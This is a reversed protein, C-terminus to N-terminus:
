EDEDEGILNHAEWQEEPIPEGVQFAYAEVGSFDPSATCTFRLGYWKQAARYAAGEAELTFGTLTTPAFASPSISDPLPAPKIQHLQELGEINCLQVIRETSELLPLTERVQRNDPDTLIRNTFLETAQVMGDAPAPPAADPEETATPTALPATTVEPPPEFADKYELETIIEVDVSQPPAIRPLPRGITVLPLLALVIAHTALSLPLALLALRSSQRKGAPEEGNWIIETM